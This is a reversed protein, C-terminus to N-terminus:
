VAFCIRDLCLELSTLVLVLWPKKLLFAGLLALHSRVHASALGGAVAAQWFSSAFGVWVLNLVSIGLIGM